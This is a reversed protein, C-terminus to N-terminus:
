KLCWHHFKASFLALLSPESVGSSGNCGNPTSRIDPASSVADGTVRNGEVSPVSSASLGLTYANL